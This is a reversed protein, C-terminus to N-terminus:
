PSVLSSENGVSVEVPQKMEQFNPKNSLPRSFLVKPVQFFELASLVRAARFRRAVKAAEFDAASSSLNLLHPPVRALEGSDLFKTDLLKKKLEIQDWELPHKGNSDSVVIGHTTSGNSRPVLVRESFSFTFGAHRGFAEWKKM